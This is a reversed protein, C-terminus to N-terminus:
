ANELATVKASLEQIAKVIAATMATAQISKGTNDGETKDEDFDEGRVAEPLVLEVEQAIFGGCLDDRTRKGGIKKWKFTVPNLANIKDLGNYTVTNIDEKLGADSTDDLEGSLTGQYLTIDNGPAGGAYAGLYLRANPNTPNGARIHAANVTVFTGDTTGFQVESYSNAATATNYITAGVQGGSNAKNIYIDAGFTATAADIQMPTTWTIADDASYASAGGTKLAINGDWMAIRSSQDAGIAEWRDNGQDYYANANWGIETGASFATPGEFSSQGGLQLATAYTGWTAEPAVGIGVNGSSDIRMREAPTSGLTNTAFRIGSAGTGTLKTGSANGGLYGYVANSASVWEIAVDNGGGITLTANGFGENNVSTTGIGVNGAFTNVGTGGAVVSGFSGTSTASSSVNGAFEANLGSDLTLSAAGDATAFTFADAGHGYKLQGRNNGGSDGFYIAGDSSTGSFITMGTHASTELVLDDFNTNATVSGATSAHVHLPGDPATTGIGVRGSGQISFKDNDDKDAVRFAPVNNDDGAAVYLGYGNDADTNKIQVAWDGDRSTLVQLPGAPTSTGIGVNGVTHVSGFSGTSTSSGSILTGSGSLVTQAVFGGSINANELTTARTSVSSSVDLLNSNTMGGVYVAGFSGTSIASGSVNSGITDLSISGSTEISGTFQHTDNADDGFKTSGSTYIISASVFETHFEQATVTNTAIIDTAKITTSLVRGFSGTSSASGSVNGGYNAFTATSTASGSFITGSGSLVTQAVFGGSINANELTTVRTSYSSSHETDSGSVADKFSDKILTYGIKTLAM